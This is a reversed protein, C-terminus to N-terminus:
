SKGSVTSEATSESCLLARSAVAVAVAQVSHAESNLPPSLSHNTLDPKVRRAETKIAQSQKLGKRPNPLVLAVTVSVTVRVCAAEQDKRGDTCM